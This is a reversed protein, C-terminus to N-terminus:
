TEESLKKRWVYGDIGEGYLGEILGKKEFGLKEYFEWSAQSRISRVLVMERFGQYRAIGELAMGLFKGIRRGEENKDVFLRAWEVSNETGTFKMLSESPSRIQALGVIKSDEEAVLYCNEMFYFDTNQIGYCFDRMGALEREVEDTLVEGENDGGRRIRQELIPKLSSLDSEQLPRIIGKFTRSESPKSSETEVMGM